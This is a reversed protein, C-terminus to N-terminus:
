LAGVATPQPNPTSVLANIAKPDLVQRPLRQRAAALMAQGLIETTLIAGPFLRRLLPTLPSMLTYIAQYWGTKSRVGHVPQIFGPRFCYVSDFRLRMLANEAKGKVRAWMVRGQETGDTGAGSVFVFSMRPNVQAMTRAISLPLDFMIKRYGAEDMGLSSVGLCYFCADAGEMEQQLEDLHFLDPAIVDRLKAHQMGTSSRGVTVVSSVEPDLLCERLVGLGVMGSAGFIVVKM